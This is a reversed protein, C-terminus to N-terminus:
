ALQLDKSHPNYQMNCTTKIMKFVKNLVTYLHWSIFYKKPAKRLYKGELVEQEKFTNFYSVLAEIMKRKASELSHSRVIVNTDLCVMYIKDNEQFAVVRLPIFKNEEM